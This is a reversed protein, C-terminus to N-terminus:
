AAVVKPEDAFRWLVGRPDRDIEVLRIKAVQDLLGNLDAVVEPRPGRRRFNHDRVCPDFWGEGNPAVGASQAPPPDSPIPPRGGYWGIM